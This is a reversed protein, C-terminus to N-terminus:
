TSHGTFGRNTSTADITGTRDFAGNQARRKGFPDYAMRELVGGSANTSAVISRLHDKHWYRLDAGSLTARCAFEPNAHCQCILLFAGKGASIYHRNESSNLTGVTQDERESTSGKM